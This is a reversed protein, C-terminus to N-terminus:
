KELLEKLMTEISDLKKHILATEKEVKELSAGQARMNKTAAAFSKTLNSVHKNLDVVEKSHQELLFEEKVEEEFLLLETMRVISVDLTLGKSKKVEKLHRGM